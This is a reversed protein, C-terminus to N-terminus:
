LWEDHSSRTKPRFYVLRGQTGTRRGDRIIRSRGGKTVAFATDIQHQVSCLPCRLVPFPFSGRKLGEQRYRSMADCDRRM